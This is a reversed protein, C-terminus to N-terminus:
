YRTTNNRRVSSGHIFLAEWPYRDTPLLHGTERREVHPSWLADASTDEERLRHAGDSGAVRRWGM